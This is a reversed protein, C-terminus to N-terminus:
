FGGLPPKKEDGSLYAVGQPPHSGGRPEIFYSWYKLCAMYTKKYMACGSPALQLGLGAGFRERLM